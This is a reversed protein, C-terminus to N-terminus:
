GNESRLKKMLNWAILSLGIISLALVIAGLVALVIKFFPLSGGQLFLVGIVAFVAVLNSIIISKIFELQIKILEIQSNM